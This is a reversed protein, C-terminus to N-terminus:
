WYIIKGNKGHTPRWKITTGCSLSNKVKKKRRLENNYLLPACVYFSLFYTEKKIDRTVPRLFYYRM